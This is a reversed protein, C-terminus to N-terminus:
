SDPPEPDPMILIIELPSLPIAVNLPAEISPAILFTKSDMLIVLSM